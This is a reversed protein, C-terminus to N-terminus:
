KDFAYLFRSITIKDISGLTSTFGTVDASNVEVFEDVYAHKDSCGTESWSDLGLRCGSKM